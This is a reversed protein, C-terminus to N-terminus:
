IILSESNELKKRLKNVASRKIKWLWLASNPILKLSSNKDSNILNELTNSDDIKLKLQRENLINIPYIGRLKTQREKPASDYWKILSSNEKESLNGDDLSLIHFEPNNTERQSAGYGFDWFKLDILACIFQEFKNSQPDIAEEDFAFCLLTEGTEEIYGLSASVLSDYGPENSNKPNAVISLTTIESFNTSIAKTQQQGGFKTLNGSYGNGLAAFYTPTIGCSDFIATILIYFKKFTNSDVSKNTYSYLGLAFNMKM